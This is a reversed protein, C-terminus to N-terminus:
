RHDYIFDDRHVYNFIYNNWNAVISISNYSNLIPGLFHDIRTKNTSYWKFYTQIYMSCIFYLDLIILSIYLVNFKFVIRTSGWM